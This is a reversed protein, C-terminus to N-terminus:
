TTVVNRGGPPCPRWRQEGPSVDPEKSNWMNWVRVEFTSPGGHKAHYEAIAKEVRKKRGDTHV